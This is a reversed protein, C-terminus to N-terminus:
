ECVTIPSKSQGKQNNTFDDLRHTEQLGRCQVAKQESVSGESPHRTLNPAKESPGTKISEQPEQDKKKEPRGERLKAIYGGGGHVRSKTNTIAYNDFLYVTKHRMSSEKVEKTNKLTTDKRFLHKPIM